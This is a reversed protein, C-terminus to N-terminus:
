SNFVFRRSLLYNAALAAISAVALAYFVKLGPIMYLMAGYVSYNVASGAMNTMLFKTWGSLSYPAKSQFTFRLHLVYCVTLAVLIGPFRAILPSLGAFIGLYTVGSDVIFGITGIICFRLFQGSM